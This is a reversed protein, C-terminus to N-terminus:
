AKRGGATGASPETATAALSDAPFSHDVLHRVQEATSQILADTALQACVAHDLRRIHARTRDLAAPAVSLVDCGLGILLPIVHPDAAADGCVSVQRGHRHAADIVDAIARLVTPHAAMAPTATPDRRDLGLLQCTLDNSGISLFAATAAIGDIATVAEPLEIMAGLPPPPVGAETAARDLLRRCTQLEDVTAVMPIMIRLDSAGSTALLARFQEIFAGPQALMLPLGRGIRGTRGDGLFPPLKDDAYDLTRVTVPLDDLRQFIPALAATHQLYGPWATSDLFPLETRLLGIGDARAEVATRADAPTAINARLIVHHGDLTRSPLDREALWATRRARDTDMADLAARRQDPAPDITLIGTGHEGGILVEAGDPCDLVSDDIGLLLPIGLSRAVIAAHSNPGGLVSAAAVVPVQPELLDGAGIERGLLVLPGHPVADADTHLWSLVRRGIQRVDTAREALVPDDLEALTGAYIDAARKIAVTIPAGGRALEIATGRLDNDDAIYSTTEIIDAQETQGRERLSQALRRLNAAVGDFADTIQQVPDGTSRHPLPTTCSRDTRHAFGLATGASALHGSFVDTTM